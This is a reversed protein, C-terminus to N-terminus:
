CPSQYCGSADRTTEIAVKWMAGDKTMVIAKNHPKRGKGDGRDFLGLDCLVVRSVGEVRLLSVNDTSVDLSGQLQPRKSRIEIDSNNYFCEMPRMFGDYYREADRDNFARVTDLYASCADRVLATEPTDALGPFCVSSIPSQISWLGGLILLSAGVCASLFRRRFGIRPNPPSSRKGSPPPVPTGDDAPWLAAVDAIQASQRRRDATMRAFFAADIRRRRVLAGLAKDVLTADTASESPIEPLIDADPGHNLWRRFEEATFLELVLNHLAKMPTDAAESSSSMPAVITAHM